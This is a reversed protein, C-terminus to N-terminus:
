PAQKPQTTGSRRRSRAATRRRGPARRRRGRRPATAHADVEAPDRERVRDDVARAREVRDGGPAREAVRQELVEREGGEDGLGDRERRALAVRRRPQPLQRGPQDVRDAQRVLAEVAEECCSRGCSASSGTGSITLTIPEVGRPPRSARRRGDALAVLDGRELEVDGARVDLGPRINPASGPSTARRSSATRGRVALGSITLSVGLQADGARRRPPRRPLVAGVGDRQDVRQAAHRRMRVAPRATARRRSRRRTRDPPGRTARAWTASTPARTARGSRRSPHPVTRGDRARGGAHPRSAPRADAGLDSGPDAAAPTARTRSLARLVKPDSSARCHRLQLERGFARCVRPKGDVRRFLM